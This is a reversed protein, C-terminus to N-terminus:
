VYLQEFLVRLKASERLLNLAYEAHGTAYGNGVIMEVDKGVGEAGLAAATFSTAMSFFYIKGHQKTTLISGMETNKINVCNIVVDALKGDTVKSVAEMLALADTADVKLAHDAWGLDKMRQCDKAFPSVGIVCGSPGARKKAEYVCLTGSKGGGGIVVVTNGAKVLRATQAPAGAVDLIALALKEDIDAPLKAYLGTEFLIARGKIEIQDKSMHIQTIEDIRLPTLSLSVLTAIKDGAKLDIKGALAPGIQAVTGILMGGSGTVPNHHKGRQAVIDQVHAAIRAEDNQCAAKIQTFSASDINLASVDILIENDYIAMANDLRWAPQPLVGLPELVRHTGYPSGHKM